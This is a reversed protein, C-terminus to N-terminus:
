LKNQDILHKILKEGPFDMIIVGMRGSEKYPVPNVNRAVIFPFCSWGNGSCHNLYFTNLDGNKANDIQKKVLDEKKGLNFPTGLDWYDQINCSKYSFAKSYSFNQLLFIKGRVEDLMPISNSFYFLDPFSRSYSEFTEQFTRTNGEAKYEEQIRMIIFEKPNEAFFKKIIKLIEGFNIKCYILGHHICFVDHYHRCRIDLYRIGAKIEDEIHWMQTEAVENTDRCCSDHTGPITIESIKRNSLNSMWNPNFANPASKSCYTDNCTMKNIKKKIKNIFNKM